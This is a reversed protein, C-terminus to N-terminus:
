LLSKAKAALGEMSISYHGFIDAQAGTVTDEDPIGVIDFRPQVGAKMLVAACAEGLGGNVMHEEVTLVARCERGARLIAEADLPKITHM